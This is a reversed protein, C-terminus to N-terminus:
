RRQASERGMLFFGYMTVVAYAGALGLLVRALERNELNGHIAVLFAFVGASLVTSIRLLISERAM